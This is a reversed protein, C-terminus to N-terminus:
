SLSVTPPTPVQKLQRERIETRREVRRAAAKQESSLLLAAVGAVAVNVAMNQILGDAVATGPSALM